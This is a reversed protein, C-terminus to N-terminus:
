TWYLWAGFTNRYWVQLYSPATSTYTMGVTYSQGPNISPSCTGQDQTTVIGAVGNSYGSVAATESGSGSSGVPSWSYNATNTGYGGVQFCDPVNTGTTNALNGNQLIQPGTEAPPAAPGPVGPQVSGGIVQNVTEVVTNNAEQGKLWNAVTTLTAPTADDDVPDAEGPCDGNCIQHFILQVWGGGNNQAQTVLQEIQAPTDTSEITGATRTAYPDLPPVTEATVCPSPPQVSGSPNQPCYTGNYKLVGGVTRASNYGCQQAIAETGPDFAGDPYAFSTPQFGENILNERDNCIEREQEVPSLTTLETHDITHGGIENGEGALTHLQAWTMFDTQDTFGSIVYFTGNLGDASLIAGAQFASEWG